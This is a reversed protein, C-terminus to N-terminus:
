NTEEHSLYHEMQKQMVVAQKRCIRCSMNKGVIAESTNQDSCIAQVKSEEDLSKCRWYGSCSGRATIVVSIRRPMTEFLSQIAHVPVSAWAAEVHHGLEDVMTVPTHHHSLQEAVMSWVNRNALFRTFM